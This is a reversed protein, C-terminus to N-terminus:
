ATVAQPAEAQEVTLPVEHGTLRLLVGRFMADVALWVIDQGAHLSVSVPPIQLAARWAEFHSPHQLQLQFHAEGSSYAIIYPRPLSPFLAGLEALVEFVPAQEDMRGPSPATFQMIPETTEITM